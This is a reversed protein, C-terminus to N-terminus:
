SGAGPRRQLPVVTPFTTLGRSPSVTRYQRRWVKLANREGQKSAVIWALDFGGFQDCLFSAQERTRAFLGDWSFEPDEKLLDAETSQIHGALKVLREDTVQHRGWETALSNWLDGVERLKSTIATKRKAKRKVDRSSSEKVSETRVGSQNLESAGIRSKSRLPECVDCQPDGCATDRQEYWRRHNLKKAHNRRGETGAAWENVATWDHIRWQDDDSREIFILESLASILQQEDGDWKAAIAIREADMGTLEGSPRFNRVYCWLRLLALVGADGLRRHLQQVKANEFFLSDLRLDPM